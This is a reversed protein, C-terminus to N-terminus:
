RDFSTRFVNEGDKTTGLIGNRVVAFSHDPTATIVVGVQKERQQEKPNGYLELTVFGDEDDGDNVAHWKGQTLGKEDVIRLERTIVTGQVEQKRGARWPVVAAVAIVGIIAVALRLRRIQSELRALRDEM